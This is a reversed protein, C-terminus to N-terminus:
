QELGDATTVLVEALESTLDDIYGDIDLDTNVTANSVVELKIKATTFKNISEREAIKRLYELEDDKLKAFTKTNDAIDDLSSQSEEWTYDNLYNELSQEASLVDSDDSGFGFKESIAESWEDGKSAGWDYADTMDMRYDIQPAERSISIANDNKGWATVTNKLDELGATWNTGFIADIIKTVVQGLSLFWSIINGVLNAVAGGFSDFGGNCANLIWEVIGIFPEVFRTWLFQIIGNILGIVTNLILAGVWCVAGFIMGLASTTTGTVKKIIAIVVGIVAIVAIIGAIIWTIPCALLAANLGIQAGSALKTNAAEVLSAGGHMLAKAAAVSEAIAHAKSVVWAATLAATYVGVAGAVGLVVPKIISWNDIFFEAVTFAGQLIGNLRNMIKGLSNTIGNIAIEITGFNNTVTDALQGIYPYLRNGVTEQLDGMANNLSIIKGEPTASMTEYLGGWSENIIQSIVAAAQMEESASAYEEGLVAVVQAESATGEIIAKQVDSFEFGKKTMADYSGSMIKGLGTAYDVMATSDLAGGGSMGMAYDALTDMMMTIADTDSFYTAFEAAGAIMAEDGYIGDAQIESAKNKITEFTSTLAQTDATVTVTAVTGDLNKVTKEIDKFQSVYDGDMMNGLVTALQTEANYQTNFLETCDEVWSVAKKGLSILAYMNAIKKVANGLEDASLKGQEVTDNFRGQEDVNDRIYRETNGVSQSLRLYAQNASQVDMNDVADNLENQIQVADELQGRLQELEANVEDSGINLPNNEIMQIKQQINQIRKSIRTIDQLAAPSFIDASAANVSIEQQKATLMNMTNLASQMEQEFRDAGSSDFVQMNDSQWEPVEPVTPEAAGMEQLAATMQLAAAEAQNMQERANEIAATSIDSSMAGEFNEMASLGLNVSSIIGMLVATFNDQLEIQSRISAM